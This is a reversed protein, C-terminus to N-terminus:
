KTKPLLDKLYAWQKIKEKEVAESWSEYCCELLYVLPNIFWHDYFESYHLFYEEKDQPEESADHWVKNLNVVDQTPNNDAWKAGNEFHIVNSPSSLTVGSVYDRAAKLIQEDRNM